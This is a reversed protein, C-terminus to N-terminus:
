RMLLLTGVVILVLGGGRYIWAEVRKRDLAANLIGVQKERNELQKDKLVMITDAIQNALKLSEVEGRFEIVRLEYLKNLDQCEVYASDLEKVTQKIFQWDEKSVKVSDQAYVSSAVIFFSMLMVLLKM